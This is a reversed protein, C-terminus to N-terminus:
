LNRGKDDMKATPLKQRFRQESAKEYVEFGDEGALEERRQIMEALEKNQTNQLMREYYAQNSETLMSLADPEAKKKRTVVDLPPIPQGKLGEATNLINKKTNKFLETLNTQRKDSKLRTDDGSGM